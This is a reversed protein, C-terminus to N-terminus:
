SASGAEGDRGCDAADSEEEELLEEWMWAKIEDCPVGGGMLPCEVAPFPCCGRVGWGGAGHRNCSAALDAPDALLEVTLTKRPM